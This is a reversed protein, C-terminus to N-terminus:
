PTTVTRQCKCINGHGMFLSAVCTWGAVDDMQYVESRTGEGDEPRQHLSSRWLAIEVMKLGESHGRAEVQAKRPRRSGVSFRLHAAVKMEPRLNMLFHM